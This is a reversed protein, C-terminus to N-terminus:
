PGLTRGLRGPSRGIVFMKQFVTTQKSKYRVTLLQNLFQLVYLGKELYYHRFTEFDYCHGILM